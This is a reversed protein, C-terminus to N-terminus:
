PPEMARRAGASRIADTSRTVVHPTVAHPPPEVPGTHVPAVWPPGEAEPPDDEGPVVADAEVPAALVGLPEADAEPSAVGDGAAVLASHFVYVSGPLVILKSRGAWHITCVAAGASPAEAPESLMSTM